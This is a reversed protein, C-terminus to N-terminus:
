AQENKVEDFLESVINWAENFGTISDDYNPKMEILKNNLRIDIRNKLTELSIKESKELAALVIRVAQSKFGNNWTESQMIEDGRALSKKLSEIAENLTM